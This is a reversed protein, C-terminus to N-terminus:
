ILLAVTRWSRLEPLKVVYRDGRKKLPLTMTENYPDILTVKETNAPNAIVVEYEDTDTISVNLLFVSVTENKENVRPVIVMQEPSAVYAPLPNDATADIASRLEERQDYRIAVEGGREDVVYKMKSFREAYKSDKIKNLVEPEVILTENELFYFDEDRLFDFAKESLYYANGKVSTSFPLGWRLKEAIEWICTDNWFPYGNEDPVIYNSKIPQYVVIGGNETGRNHKEYADYFPRYKAIRKFMRKHWDLSEYERMLTVSAENCGYALYLAAEICTCEPSKGYVTWPVNEIECSRTKVYQPLRANMYNLIMAKTFMDKPSHDIYFGGGARFAPATGTKEYMKDLCAKQANIALMTNGGNQLAMVTDPSAEHVAESIVGAFDALTDTQFRIYEDRVSLDYLFDKKLTERTYDYGYRENFLQMCNDCFCLAKSKGLLRLRVDDDVWVIEPGFKAYIKMEESVYHRFAPSNWCYVGNVAVGDISTIWYFDPEVGEGGYTVLAQESHGVTRSLQMSATIGAKEFQEAAWFMDKAEKEMRELSPIGYSTALWVEDFCDGSEHIAQILREIYDHDFHSKSGTRLSFRM